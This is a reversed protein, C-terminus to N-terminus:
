NRTQACPRFSDKFLRIEKHPLLGFSLLTDNFCKLSMKGFESSLDEKLKMINLLGHYYATAQGPARFAYRQYELEAMTKSVGMEQTFVKLVTKRTAEGLQVMPDLYYRAIRWLRTQYAVFKEEDTLYPFVLDEAFLAWGEVNVSSMAYRSRVISVPNELMRSFQLDHGPRGEHATLITAASEYAFDDFPLRGSSSTPVVFEPLIGNNNILPPPILHPVPAAKSEADGAFRILLKTAPLSVLNNKIIIKELRAAARNYLDSVEKISSVQNLKLFNIVAAPDNKSLKNKKAIKKSLNEFELYVMKYKEKGLKIMERPASDVGVAKLTLKYMELPYNPTKRALPLLKIKIFNDYLFIEKKFKTYEVKWDSRGSKKLLEEIGAVYAPSDELYKKIDEVFPYFKSHKKYKAQLRQIEAQSARMLNNQGKDSLYFKFRAVAAKKRTDPSQENILQHLSNYIDQSPKYMPIAAIKEDIEKWKLDKKVKEILILYDVQLNKDKNNALLKELKMKWMLLLEREKKDIEKSPISGLSDYEQYGLDSGLEPFISSFSKSFDAAVNNSQQVWNNSNSLTSCGMLAILFIQTVVLKYIM